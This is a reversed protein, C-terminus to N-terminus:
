EFAMEPLGPDQMLQAKLEETVPVWKLVNIGNQYLFLHPIKRWKEEDSLDSEYNHVESIQGSAGNIKLVLSPGEESESFRQLFYYFNEGSRFIDQFIYASSVDFKEPLFLPEGEELDIIALNSRSQERNYVFLPLFRNSLQYFLATEPRGLLPAYLGMYMHSTSSTYDRDLEFECNERLPIQWLIDGGKTLSYSILRLPAKGGQIQLILSDKYVAWNLIPKRLTRFFPSFDDQRYSSISDGGKSPISFLVEESGDHRLAIIRCLDEEQRLFLPRGQWIQVPSSTQYSRSSGDTKSIIRFERMLGSHLILSNGSEVPLAPQPIGEAATWLAEGSKLDLCILQSGEFEHVNHIILREGDSWSYFFEQTIGCFLDKEWLLEGTEADLAIQRRKLDGSGTETTVPFTVVGDYLAYASQPVEHNDLFITIDATSYNWRVRSKEYLTVKLIQEEGGRSEWRLKTGTDNLHRNMLITDYAMLTFPVLLLLLQLYTKKSVM